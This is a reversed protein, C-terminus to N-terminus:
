QFLSFLHLYGESRKYAGDKNCLENDFVQIFSKIKERKQKKKDREDVKRKMSLKSLVLNEFFHDRSNYLNKVNLLSWNLHSCFESLRDCLEFFLLSLQYHFVQLLFKQFVFHHQLNEQFDKSSNEQKPQSLVETIIHADQFHKFIYTKSM